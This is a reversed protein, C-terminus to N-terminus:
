PLVRKAGAPEPYLPGPLTAKLLRTTHQRLFAVDRAQIPHPRRLPGVVRPVPVPQGTRGIVTGPHELDLGELATAFYNSYSERRAEGDTVIDIGAREMDRLALLVADDQAEALLPPPIRWLERAPVRPVIGRALTDRDILWAPQPYSGVVTTPLLLGRM